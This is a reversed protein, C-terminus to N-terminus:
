DISLTVAGRGTHKSSFDDETAHLAVICNYSSGSMLPKDLEDRSDLPIIFEIVTGDGETGAYELIDDEGGEETDPKHGFSSVGYEDSVYTEGDEVYGFIFNAGKMGSDPDIGISVWGTGPSSLAVYLLEETNM